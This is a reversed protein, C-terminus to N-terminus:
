FTNKNININTNLVNNKEYFAKVGYLTYIISGRPYFKIINNTFLKLPWKYIM